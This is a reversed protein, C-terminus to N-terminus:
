HSLYREIVEMFPEDDSWSCVFLVNFNGKLKPLVSPVKISPIPDPISVARGGHDVVYKELEVNSVITLDARKCVGSAVWNLLPYRGEFPFLGANHADVILKKKFVRSVVVSLLALILSPNQSFIIRPKEKVLLSITKYIVVPYRRYASGGVDLEYLRAGLVASLSRNRRQTEWAVWVRDSM